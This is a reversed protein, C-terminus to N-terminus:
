TLCHPTQGSLYELKEDAIKLVLLYTLQEVYDGYSVGDGRLVNCFDWFKQVLTAADDTM